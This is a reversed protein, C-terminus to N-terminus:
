FNDLLFYKKIFSKLDNTVFCQCTLFVSKIRKQHFKLNHSAKTKLMFGM